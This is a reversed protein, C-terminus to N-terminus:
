GRAGLEEVLAQLAENVQRQRRHLFILYCFILSWFVAYGFFLYLNM